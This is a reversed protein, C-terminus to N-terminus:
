VRRLGNEGAVYAEGCTPCKLSEPDLKEGCACMWGIQRAPNGVMLAHDPVDKTVVAGAGIFAYNGITHGCVITCNAGVSAGKKVLTQRVEHMRPIFARPNFINTFVMSPGCFVDDELTVGQYVSVNNQIKCGNGVNVDPGIVVNQGINCGEGVRSGKLVHSFHWIKTGDGVTAGADILATPHAFYSLAAQAVPVRIGGGELSKRSAALVRLEPLGEQGQPLAPRDLSLRGLFRQCTHWLAEGPAPDVQGSGSPSSLRLKDPWPLADDFVATKAEGVVVLRQEQFPHPRSLFVHAQLAQDFELHIVSAQADGVALVSRPAADALAMVLSIDRLAASRTAEGTAPSGSYLCEIRGFEGATVMDRLRTVAPHDLDPHGAMFLLGKEGATAALRAAEAESLNWPSAVLVHRGAALALGAIEALAPAPADVAVGAVQPASLVGAAADRDPPCAALLVGLADFIRALRSDDPAAVAIGAFSASTVTPEPM